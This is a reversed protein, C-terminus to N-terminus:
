GLSVKSSRGGVSFQGLPVAFFSLGNRQEFSYRVFQDISRHVGGRSVALAFELSNQAIRGDFEAEGESILKRLEVASMPRSWIPMWVQGRITNKDAVASPYDSAVPRVTFPFRVAGPRLNEMRRTISPAFITAGELMFVIDWPNIRGQHAALPNFQGIGKNTFELGPICIDFLAARLLACALNLPKGTTLDFLKLLQQMFTRSFELNGDNGGTGLLYSYSVKDDTVIACSDLWCVARDPLTNRLRIFLRRKQEANPKETLGLRQVQVQAVRITERYDSFRKAKSELMLNLTKKSDKEYYGTSGNWPSTIPTPSYCDLFFDMLEKESVRTELVFCGNQWFGKATADLGQEVILHLVGLSKLYHSLPETTCGSLKLQNM